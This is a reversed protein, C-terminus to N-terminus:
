PHGLNTAGAGDALLKAADAFGTVQLVTGLDWAWRCSLEILVTRGERQSTFFGGEM